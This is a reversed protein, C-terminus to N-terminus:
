NYYLVVIAAYAVEATSDDCVSGAYDLSCELRCDRVKAQLWVATLLRITLVDLIAASLGYIVVMAM